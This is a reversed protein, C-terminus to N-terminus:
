VSDGVAIHITILGLLVSLISFFVHTFALTILIQIIEKRRLKLITSKLDPYPLEEVGAGGSIFLYNVTM